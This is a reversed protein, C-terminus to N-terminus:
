VRTPCVKDEERAKRKGGCWGCAEGVIMRRCRACLWARVRRERIGKAYEKSDEM